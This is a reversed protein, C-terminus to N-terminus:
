VIDYQRYGSSSRPPHGGTHEAYVSSHSHGAIDVNSIPPSSPSQPSLDPNAIIDERRITSSRYPTDKAKAVASCKGQSAAGLDPASLLWPHSPTPASPTLTSLRSEPSSSLHDSGTVSSDPSLLPSTSLMVPTPYPSWPVDLDDLPAHIDTTYEYTAADAPFIEIDQTTGAVVPAPSTGPSSPRGMATQRAPFFATSAFMNNNLLPVDLFNQDVPLSPNVSPSTHPTSALSAPLLVARAFTPSTSDDHVHIHPLSGLHHGSVNCVPYSSPQRLIDDNNRTSPSFQTPFSNTHQHLAMYTNRIRGLIFYTMMRNNDSRAKRVIQNWLACFERQLEPLTDEVNFTSAALLLNSFELVPWSRKWFHNYQM